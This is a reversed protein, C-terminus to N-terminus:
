METSWWTLFYPCPSAQVRLHSVQSKSCSIRDPPTWIDSPPETMTKLLSSSNEQGFQLEFVLLWAVLFQPSHNTRPYGVGWFVDLVLQNYCFLFTTFQQSKPCHFVSMKLLARLCLLIDNHGMQIMIMPWVCFM